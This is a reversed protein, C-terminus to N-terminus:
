PWSIRDKTMTTPFDAAWLSVNIAIPLMTGSIFDSVIRRKTSKTHITNTKLRERGNVLPVHRVAALSKQGLVTFQCNSERAM